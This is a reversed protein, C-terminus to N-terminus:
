KYQNKMRRFLIFGFILEVTGMALYFPQLWIGWGILIIQVLMWIILTTGMISGFIGASKKNKLSLLAGFLNGLGIVTILTIGPILFNTFPSQALIETKMGMGSGDPAIILQLGGAVAGAGIFIQLYGLLKTLSTKM